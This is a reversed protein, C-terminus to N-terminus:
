ARVDTRLTSRGALTALAGVWTEYTRLAEDLEELLLTALHPPPVEVVGRTETRDIELRGGAQVVIRQIRRNTTFCYFHLRDIGRNRAAVILRGALAGGVGANQFAPEVSIAVEATAADVRFLEGVGRLEGAIFAGIALDAAVPAPGGGGMFRDRRGAAGLRELHEALLRGDEPGLKRFSPRGHPPRQQV